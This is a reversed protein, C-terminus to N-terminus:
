HQDPHSPQWVLSGRGRRTSTPIRITLPTTGVVSCGLRKLESEAVRMERRHIAAEATLRFLVERDVPEDAEAREIRLELNSLASGREELERTISRLLPLLAQAHGTRPRPPKM